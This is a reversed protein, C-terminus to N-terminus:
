TRHTQTTINCLTVCLCLIFRSPGHATFSHPTGKSHSQACKSHGLSKCRFPVTDMCSTHVTPQLRSIYSSHPQTLTAPYDIGGPLIGEHFVVRPVASPKPSPAAKSLALRLSWPSQRGESLAPQLRCCQAGEFQQDVFLVTGNCCRVSPLGSM